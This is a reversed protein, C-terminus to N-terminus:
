IGELRECIHWKSILCCPPCHFSMPCEEMSIMTVLPQDLFLLVVLAVTGGVGLGSLKEWFFVMCPYRIGFTYRCASGNKADRLFQFINCWARVPTFPPKLFGFIKCIEYKFTFTGIKYTWTSGCAVLSTQALQALEIVTWQTRFFIHEGLM